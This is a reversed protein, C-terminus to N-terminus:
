EGVSFYHLAKNPFEFKEGRSKNGLKVYYTAKCMFFIRGYESRFPSHVTLVPLTTRQLQAANRQVNFRATTSATSPTLAM